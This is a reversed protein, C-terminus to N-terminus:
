EKGCHECLSRGVPCWERCLGSPRPPFDDREAAYTMRQVRHSFDQWIVPVDGRTFTRSDVRDHALWVYGTHVTEIDPNEAFMVGAYVKAQDEDEKPKGTKYDLLTASMGNTVTVDIKGRVWADMGWYDAPRFSSNLAFSREAQKIGPALRLKNIINNYKAYQPPLAEIGKLANELAKHVRNGELTATTQPERVAKSIRTLKFRRPCTEFAALSSPSWPLVPSKRVNTSMSM